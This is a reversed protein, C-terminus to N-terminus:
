LQESKSLDVVGSQDSDISSSQIHKLFDLGINSETVGGSLNDRVQDVLSSVSLDILLSDRESGVIDDGLTQASEADVSNLFQDLFDEGDARVELYGVVEEPGELKVGGLAAEVVFSM